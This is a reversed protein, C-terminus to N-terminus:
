IRKGGKCVMACLEFCLLVVSSPFLSFRPAGHLALRPRDAPICPANMVACSCYPVDGPASEDTCRSLKLPVRNCSPQKTARTAVEYRTAAYFQFRGANQVRERENGTPWQLETHAVGGTGRVRLREGRPPGRTSACLPAPYRLTCWGTYLSKTM